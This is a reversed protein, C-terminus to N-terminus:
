CAVPKASLPRAVPRASNACFKHGSEAPFVSRSQVREDKTRFVGITQKLWIGSAEIFMCRSRQKWIGWRVPRIQRM